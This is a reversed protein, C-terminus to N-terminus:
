WTAFFEILIVKGRLAALDPGKKGANVWEKASIEPMKQGDLKKWGEATAPLAVLGLLLLITAGYRM